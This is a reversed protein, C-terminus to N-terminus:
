IKRKTDAARGFGAQVSGDEESKLLGVPQWHRLAREDEGEGNEHGCALHSASSPPLSVCLLNSVDELTRTNSNGKLHHHRSTVGVAGGEGEDLGPNAEQQEAGSQASGLVVVVVM